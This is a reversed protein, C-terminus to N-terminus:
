DWCMIKNDDGTTYVTNDEPNIDLGWVEGDSHSVMVDQSNGEEDRVCITGNRLGIVTKGNFNDVARVLSDFSCLEEAAPEEASADWCQVTGDKGGSFLQDTAPNYSLACIFGGKHGELTALCQRDSWMYVLANTGGTFCRDQKDWTCCSMSVMEKGSFIGKKKEGPSNADWFYIHNKGATAFKTSGEAYSFAVDYILNTDGKESWQMGEGAKM